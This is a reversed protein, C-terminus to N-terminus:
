SLVCIYVELAKRGAAAKDVEEPSYRELHWTGAIQKRSYHAM